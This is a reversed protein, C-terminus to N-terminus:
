VIVSAEYSLHGLMTTLLLDDAFADALKESALLDNGTQKAFTPFDHESGNDTAIVKLVEGSKVTVKMARKGHVDVGYSRLAALIGSATSGTGCALTEDEVGREYTRVTIANAEDIQVFDVNTGAPKFV